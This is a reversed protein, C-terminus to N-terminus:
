RLGQKQLLQCTTALLEETLPTTWPYTNMMRTMSRVIVSDSELRTREPTDQNLLHRASRQMQVQTHGVCISWMSTVLENAIAEQQPAEVRLEGEDCARLIEQQFLDEVAIDVAIFKELWGPSARRLIAENGLLTELQPAFGFPSVLSHDMLQVAPIRAVAPLPLAFIQKVVAMFHQQYHYGLAVLVDEKSQIHKYISGMSLGAEKSIASMTFDLLSTAEICKAAADLILTEQEQCSFRPAPM